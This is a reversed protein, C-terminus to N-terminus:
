CIELTLDQELDSPIGIFDTLYQLSETYSSFKAGCFRTLNNSSLVKRLSFISGEDPAVPRGGICSVNEQMASNFHLFM